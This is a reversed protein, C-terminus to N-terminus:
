LEIGEALVGKFIIILMILILIGVKSIVGVSKTKSPSIYTVTEANQWPFIFIMGSMVPYIISVLAIIPLYLITIITSGILWPLILIHFSFSKRPKKIGVM